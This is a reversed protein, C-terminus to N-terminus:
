NHSASGCPPSVCASFRIKLNHQIGLFYRKFWAVGFFVQWLKRGLFIGSFFIEKIGTLQSGWCAGKGGPWAKKFDRWQTPLFVRNLSKNTDTKFTSASAPILIGKCKREWIFPFYMFTVIGGFIAVLSFVRPGNRNWPQRTTKFLSLFRNSSGLPSNTPLGTFLHLSSSSSSYLFVATLKTPSMSLEKM